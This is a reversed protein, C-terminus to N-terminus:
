PNYCNYDMWTYNTNGNFQDYTILKTGDFATNEVRWNSTGRYSFRKLFMMGNYFTCNRFTADTSITDGSIVIWARYFHCNTFYTHAGYTYLSLGYFESNAIRFSGYKWADRFFAASNAIGPWRTFSANVQPQPSAGSGNMVMGHMWGRLPWSGNGEQAANFRLFSVPVTPTGTLTLTAGNNLIVGYPQGSAYTSGYNEFYALATGATVNLSASLTCGGLVYDLPEYHYGLDPTDTDRAAEPSFTTSTSFTVNSHVVPPYTTKSKLSALLTPNINTTGANRYISNTALYHSGGGVTQFVGSSGANTVSYASNVVTVANTSGLLAVGAILSNTVNYTGRDFGIQAGNITVHEVAVTRGDWTALAVFPAYFLLNRMSASEASYLGTGAHTFQCDRVLRAGPGNLMILGVGLRSIRLDHVEVDQDVYDFHLATFGYYGSPAGTSGSITEGVSNDDRATFVAPRYPGTKFNLRDAPGVALHAAAYDDWNYPPFKIVTGGEIVNTGVLRTPGTVYYTTDGQFTFNTLSGNLQLYDLVYGPEDRVAQAMQMPKDTPEGLRAEPLELGAYLTRLPRPAVGAQEPLKDLEERVEPLAVQELLFTRGNMQMWKKAVAAQKRRPGAMTNTGEAFARGRGIWMLGFSVEEDEAEGTTSTSATGIKRVTAAPPDIFETLVALKTTAPNLGLTEPKPPRERLIVDQEVGARTYTFRVDAKIGNFADEYIVRNPPLVKGACDKIEALRVSKDTSRDFYYLSLVQSRMIRGDAMQVAVPGATNLNYALSVKHPGKHAVAWGPVVKFEEATEQWQGRADRYHMGTALEVYALNTTVEVIGEPSEVREVKLWEKQNASRSGEQYGLLERKGGRASQPDPSQSYAPLTLGLACFVLIVPTKM